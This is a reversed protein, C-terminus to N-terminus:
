AVSDAQNQELQKLQEILKRYSKGAENAKRMLARGQDFNHSAFEAMAERSFQSAKASYTRIQIKLDNTNNM